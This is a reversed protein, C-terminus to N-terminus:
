GHPNGHEVPAFGRRMTNETITRPEVFQLLYDPGGAKSGIGSMKFGGFPHRGVLAGTIGRNLYLNGVRFERSALALNEPSRSFVGGTLAYDSDNAMAIAEAFSDARMVALAPGFIEERALRHHPRIEGFITPPVYFGSSPTDTTYLLTGEEKGIKIYSLIKKQAAEDIVPGMAFAPNEAPGISLSATAAVLRRVFKDHCATHVIVRSCASCKQGQFGFASRVVQVVAEDLDADEDIIVANKGGMEAIIKKIGHQGPVVETAQRALHLGVERSGTFAILDLRPHCSLHDGIEGGKFPVYNFVGGPVGARYLIDALGAGIVAALGSPKFIVTNGTLLAASCMGCAIALPFNWPAIVACVGRPQYFYRNSEGPVDGMIQPTALKISERSYYEIFDIAETVDGHAQDWQKGVELVQMAVLDYIEQRMIAAANRVIRVRESVPRLRWDNFADVAAEVAQDIEAKSAQCVTGIVEDPVAPNISSVRHSTSIERGDILLPYQRGLRNRVTTLAAACADRVEKRSFDAMPETSFAPLHEATAPTGSLTSSAKKAPILGVPDRLLHDSAIGEAFSQRLFSDNSTNELLRRVLYAMGPLLDGFPGYLRVRGTHKLLAKRVPEAMGYLVQFEYCEEPVGMARATELVMAISRINHSACALHCIDHNELITRANREFAADTEAKNQYVPVPWSNQAAVVTEYDWYAGKVLRISIPLNEQRAWALLHALDRDTEKLYTQLVLGFWPYDRFQPDSRLRRYVAITLDKMQHHEMDICLFAGSHMIKALIPRLRAAIATVSGEFDRPNSQSYLASPKVAVNIRPAHGWDLPSENKTALSPWTDRAATLADILTFYQAQYGIAEDESVTAEGLIDVAVTFGNKRLETIAQLAESATSGLIFQRALKEINGAMQGAMMRGATRACVGDGKACWKLMAPINADDGGFYEEMHRSVAETGSLSPLVDVFRLLQVKFDDHQMAWEMVKGSWWGADFISPKEGKISEFFARGTAKIREDAALLDM